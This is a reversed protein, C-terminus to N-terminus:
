VPTAELIINAIYRDIHEESVAEEPNTIIGEWVRTDPDTYTVLLGLCSQLFALLELAKTRKLSEFSIEIITSKSWQADRVLTPSGGRSINLARNVISEETNGFIPNRLTISGAGCVLTISSSVGFVIAPLAPGQPDYEHRNCPVDVYPLISQTFSINTAIAITLELQAAVEQTFTLDNSIGKSKDVVVDQDFQIDNSPDEMRAAVMTFGIDNSASEETVPGMIQGLNLSQVVSITIDINKNVNQTFGINTQVQLIKVNHLALQNFGLSNSARIVQEVNATTQLTFSTFPSRNFETPGARYRAFIEPEFTQIPPHNATTPTNFATLNNQAIIDIVPTDARYAPAHFVLENSRILIPDIKDAGVDNIESATLFTTLDWITIEAIRGSVYETPTQKSLRGIATRNLGTPFATLGSVLSGNNAGNLYVQIEMGSSDQNFLGLAHYWTNALVTGTSTAVELTSTNDSVRAQITASRGQVLVNITFGTDVDVADSVSGVVANTVEVTDGYVTASFDAQADLAVQLAAAVVVASDGASIDVEIGTGGPTPDTSLNDVDFWVYYSTTPSDILFYKGGLSDSTLEDVTTIETIEAKESLFALSFYNDESGSNTLCLLTQDIILSDIYFWCGMGLPFSSIAVAAAAEAYELSADDFLISM